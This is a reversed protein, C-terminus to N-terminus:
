ILILLFFHSIKGDDLERAKYGNHGMYGAGFVVAKLVLLVLLSSLNLSLVQFVNNFYMKFLFCFM